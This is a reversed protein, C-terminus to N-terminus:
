RGAKCIAYRTSRARKATALPGIILMCSPLSATPLFLGVIRSKSSKCIPPISARPARAVWREPARMCPARAHTRATSIRHHHCRSPPVYPEKERLGLSGISSKGQGTSLFRLPLFVGPSHSFAPLLGCLSPSRCSALQRCRHGGSVRTSDSYAGAGTRTRLSTNGRKRLGRLPIVSKAYAGGRDGRWCALLRPDGAGRSRPPM